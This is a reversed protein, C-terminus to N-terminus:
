TASAVLEDALRSAGGGVDIVAADGPFDLADVLELSVEPVAQHWSVGDVGRSAYAADWHDSALV